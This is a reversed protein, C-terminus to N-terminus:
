NRVSKLVKTPINEKDKKSAALYRSRPAKQGVTPRIITNHSALPRRPAQSNELPAPTLISQSAHPLNSKEENNEDSFLDQSANLNQFFNPRYIYISRNSVINM